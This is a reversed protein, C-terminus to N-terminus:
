TRLIHSILNTYIYHYVKVEKINHRHCVLTCTINSFSTLMFAHYNLILTAHSTISHCLTLTAAIIVIIVVHHTHAHHKPHIPKIGFSMIFSFSHSMLSPYEFQACINGLTKPYSPPLSMISPSMRSTPTYKSVISTPGHLQFQLISWRQLQQLNM